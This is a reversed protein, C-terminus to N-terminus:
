KYEEPIQLEKQKGKEAAIAWQTAFTTQRM